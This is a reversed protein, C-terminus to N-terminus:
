FIPAYRWGLLARRELLPQGWSPFAKLVQDTVRGFKDDMIMTQFNQCGQGIARIGRDTVLSCATLDLEKLHPCVQALAILGEDTLELCSRLHLIRLSSSFQSLLFDLTNPRLTPSSSLVPSSSSSLWPSSSAHPLCHSISLFQLNQCQLAISLLGPTSVSISDRVVASASSEALPVGPETDISGTVVPILPRFAVTNALNLHRLNRGLSKAIKELTRDSMSRLSYALNLSTLRKCHDLIEDIGKATINMSGPLDLILLNPCCEALLILSSDSLQKPSHIILSTLNPVFPLLHSLFSDSVIYYLQSFDLTRILSSYRIMPRPYRVLHSHDSTPGQEGAIIDNSQEVRQLPECTNIPKNAAPTGLSRMLDVDNRREVVMGRNTQGQGSPRTSIAFGGGHPDSRRQIEPQSLIAFSVHSSKDKTRASLTSELTRAVSATAAVHDDDSKSLTRIMKAWSSYYGTWPSEWLHPIVQTSWRSSLTACNLLSAHDLRCLIQDLIEIPLLDFVDKPKAASTCKHDKGVM